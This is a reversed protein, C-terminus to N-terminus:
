NFVKLHSELENALHKASPLYFDKLNNSALIGDYAKALAVAAEGKGIRKEGKPPLIAYFLNYEETDTM